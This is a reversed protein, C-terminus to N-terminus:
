GKMVEGSFVINNNNVEKTCGMIKLDPFMNHHIARVSLALQIDDPDYQGVDHYVEITLPLHITGELQQWHLTWFIKNKFM